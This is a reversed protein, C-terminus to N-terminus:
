LARPPNRRRVQISQLGRHDFDAVERLAVAVLEGDVVQRKVTRGPMTVPKRPGFPAPLDVVIRMIRPRSRASSPSPRRDVALGVAVVGRRQALDARDELRPRDVGAARGVVVQEREALRVADRAAADVLHDLEDPQLVDRALADPANESPM